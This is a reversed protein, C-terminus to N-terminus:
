IFQLKLEKIIMLFYKVNETKLHWQVLGTCANKKFSEYLQLLTLHKIFKWNFIIFFFFGKQYMFIYIFPIHPTFLLNNDNVLKAQPFM